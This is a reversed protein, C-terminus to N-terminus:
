PPPPVCTEGPQANTRKHETYNDTGSYACSTCYWHKGTLTVTRSCPREYHCITLGGTGDATCKLVWPGCTPAGYTTTCSCPWLGVMQLNTQGFVALEIKAAIEDLFASLMEISGVPDAVMLESISPAVPYGSMVLKRILAEKEESSQIVSQFPDDPFLGNLLVVPEVLNLTIIDCPELSEASVDSVYFQASDDITLHVYAAAEEITADEWARAEWEGNSDRTFYMARINDDRALSDDVWAFLSSVTQNQLLPAFTWGEVEIEAYYNDATVRGTLLALVLLTTGALAQTQFRPNQM